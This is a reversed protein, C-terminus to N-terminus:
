SANQKFYRKLHVTFTVDNLEKILQYDANYLLLQPTQFEGFNDYLLQLDIQVFEFPANPFEEAYSSIEKLNHFSVFVIGVNELLRGRKYLEEVQQHCPACELDILVLLFRTNRAISRLSFETSDLRTASIEPLLSAELPKETSIDLHRSLLVAATILTLAVLALILTYNKMILTRYPNIDFGM